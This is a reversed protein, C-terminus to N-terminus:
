RALLVLRLGNVSNRNVPVNRARSASRCFWSNLNWSGGRLVRFSGFDPGTPNRALAGDYDGYWDQCWEWVNGHMDHLGWVNPRFLGVETTKQRYEGKLGNGYPYNGDYNVMSADLNNGYHFPTTTGARCAYEWQAETPLSAKWAGMEVKGNVQSIFDQCDNWSVTEVPLTDGKFNSPNSGMVREWQAQTVETKGMWFGKSLTVRHQPSEDRSRGEENAPSGMVFEGAPIWVFDLKVGGGLNVALLEGARQASAIVQSSEALFKVVPSVPAPQAAPLITVTVGNSPTTFMVVPPKIPTARVQQQESPITQQDSDSLWKMLGAVALLGVIGAAIARIRKEQQDTKRHRRPGPVSSTSVPPALRDAPPPCAESAPHKTATQETVSSRSHVGEIARCMAGASAYREEPDYALCRSLIIEDWIPDLSPRVKSPPKIVGIVKRGTLLEYLIVGMAYVDSRADAVRDERQEPSMYDFTGVTDTSVTAQGKLTADEGLSRSLAHAQIVSEEFKEGLARALGFDAIYLKTDKDLLINAPKLDRHIIGNLIEADRYSHAYDLARCIELGVAAAEDEDLLEGRERRQDLLQRLNLPERHPGEIYDMVLFPVGDAVGTDTCAVIHPHKLRAALKAERMFRKEFGPKRAFEARITKLAHRTGLHIHEVLYVAGMGGAGLLRVIRYNGLVTGAGLEAATNTRAGTLTPSSGLSHEFPKM